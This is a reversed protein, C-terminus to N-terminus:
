KERSISKVYREEIIINYQKALHHIENAWNEEFALESQQYYLNKVSEDDTLMLINHLYDFRRHSIVYEIPLLGIELYVVCLAQKLYKLQVVALTNINYKRIRAWIQSNFLLLRAVLPSLSSAKGARKQFDFFPGSKLFFARM